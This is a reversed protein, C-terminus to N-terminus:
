IQEEREARMMDINAAYGAIDVLTDTTITNMGRAIKQLINLFCVQEPTITFGLYASFLAATRSHNDLPNGYHHQRDGSVVEAARRLISNNIACKSVCM